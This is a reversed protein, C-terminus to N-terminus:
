PSEAPPRPDRTADIREISSERGPELELARSWASLAQDTLGLAHLADGLHEYVVPEGGGLEIATEIEERAEEFRGLRYYTWGLTDRVFGNKPDLAVAREAYGLARAPDLDEDALTYALFNLAQV